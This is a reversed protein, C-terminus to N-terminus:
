FPMNTNFLYYMKEMYMRRKTENYNTITINTNSVDPNLEYILDYHVQDNIRKELPLTLFLEMLRRNNYPITIDFSVRHECTIVQGGWGGYRMEWLFMDSADYNYIDNFDTEEIYEKFIQDTKKVLSRNHLFLKYLTTMQRPTLRYPMKKMGFKKYYNARGIESVWSKVEVDFPRNNEDLYFMRKRVDNANQKGIKGYNHELITRYVEINNYHEDNNDILDIHHEAGIATAIRHAALADPEEGPMSIYSFLYYHDYLGNAAAVTAKSDMGGTMSIGPHAWKQAIMEMTARMIEAIRKITKTYEDQTQTMTLEKTPYFRKILFESGDYIVKTNPVIRFLGAFSSINGPLFAGYFHYFKYNVLEKVYDQVPLSLLDGILQMHTSVYIDDDFKGYYAIQMSACDSIMTLKNGEVYGFSFVGTLNNFYDYLETICCNSLRNLIEDESVIKDFPDYAHGILFCDRQTGRCFFGTQDPHIYFHYNNFHM